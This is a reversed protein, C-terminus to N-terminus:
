PDHASERRYWWVIFLRIIYKIKSSVLSEHVVFINNKTTYM